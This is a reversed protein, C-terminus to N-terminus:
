WVAAILPATGDWNECRPCRAGADLTRADLKLHVPGHCSPKYCLLKRQTCCGLYAAPPFRCVSVNYHLLMAALYKESTEAGCV